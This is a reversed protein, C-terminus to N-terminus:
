LIPNQCQDVKCNFYKCCPIDNVRCICINARACKVCKCPMPFHEPITTDSTVKPQLVYDENLEYGHEMPDITISSVFPSCFWIYTQLYSRRIHLHVSSSPPPLKELDLYKHKKYFIENRLQDFTKVSEDKCICKLLFMEATDIMEKDIVDHKGFEVLKSFMGTFAVKLAASKTGIKSTTDCGLIILCLLICSLFKM